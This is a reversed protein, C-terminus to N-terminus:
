LWDGYPSASFNKLEDSLFESLALGADVFPLRDIDNEMSMMANPSPLRSVADYFVNQLEDTDSGCTDCQMAVDSEEPNRRGRSDFITNYSAYDHFDKLRRTVHAATGFSGNVVGEPPDISDQKRKRSPYEGTAPPTPWYSEEGDDPIVAPTLDYPISSEANQSAMNSSGCLGSSRSSSQVTSLAAEIRNQYSVRQESKTKVRVNIGNARREADFRERFMEKPIDFLDALHDIAVGIRKAVASLAGLETKGQDRAQKKIQAHIDTNSYWLAVRLLNNYSLKDAHDGFIRDPSLAAPLQQRMELIPAATKRKQGEGPSDDVPERRRKRKENFTANKRRCPPPPTVLLQEASHTSPVKDRVKNRDPSPTSLGLLLHGSYSFVPGHEHEDIENPMDRAIGCWNDTNDPGTARECFLWAIATTSSFELPYISAHVTGPIVTIIGLQYHAGPAIAHQDQSALMEVLVAMVEVSIAQPGLLANTDPSTEPVHLTSRLKGQLTMQQGTRIFDPSSHMKYLSMASPSELPLGLMEYMGHIATQLPKYAGYKEHVLSRQVRAGTDTMSRLSQLVLSTGLIALESITTGFIFDPFNVITKKLPYDSHFGYETKMEAHRNADLPTLDPLVHATLNDEDDQYVASLNYPCSMYNDSVYLDDLDTRRVSM